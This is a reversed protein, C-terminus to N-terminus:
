VEEIGNAYMLYYLDVGILYANTAYTDAANDADRSVTLNITEGDTGATHAACVETETVEYQTGGAASAAFVTTASNAMVEGHAANETSIAWIVNGANADNVLWRVKARIIGEWGAPFSLPIVASKDTIPDFARVKVLDLEQVSGAGNTNLPVFATAPIYVHGWGFGKALPQYLNRVGRKDITNDVQGATASVSFTGVIIADTNGALVKVGDLKTIKTLLNAQTTYIIPRELAIVGGALTIAMIWNTSAAYKFVLDSLDNTTATANKDLTVQTASDITSIVSDAAIGTGTVVMGVVFLATSTLNTIIPSGSTIDGTQTSDTIRLTLESFTLYKWASLTADYMRAMNGNCPTFYLTEADATGDLNYPDGTAATIRGYVNHALVGEGIAAVSDAADVSYLKGDTGAYIRLNGAAPPDPTASEDFDRYDVPAAMANNITAFMTVPSGAVDDVVPLLDAKNVATLETLETIKQDTM